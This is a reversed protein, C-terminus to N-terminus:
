KYFSKINEAIREVLVGRATKSIWGIHPLLVAKTKDKIKFYPSDLPLPEKAYVDIGIGAILEENLARVLDEDNIIAGRGINIINATPKCLKLKSYTILNNTKQNLPAHISVFDSQRLLEDLELHEYESSHPKGSTSYYVVRMGFAKALQAVKSGINGLGIIGITQGELEYFVRSVDSAITGKSYEGSKVRQDYYPLKCALSLIMSMTVQSVSNTSYGAVNKVEIGKSNAYEIDINNTGTAAVCILKLNPAADIQPKRIEVKNVILVDCLSIREFVESAETSYYSVFEGLSSIPTLSIDEGISGADLFVIKCRM